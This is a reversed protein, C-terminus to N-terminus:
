WSVMKGNLSTLAHVTQPSARLQRFFYDKLM